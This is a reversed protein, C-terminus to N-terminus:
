RDGTFLSLLRPAVARLLAYVGVCVAVTLLPTAFYRLLYFAPAEGPFLRAALAGMLKLLLLTHAAYIFFSSQSCVRPVLLPFRRVSAAAVNVLACSGSIVYLPTLLSGLRVPAGQLLMLALLLLPTVVYSVTRMRGAEVVLNRRTLGMWAGVTFFFVASLSLGEVPPWLVMVYLAGLLLPLWGGLRRLLFHVVPALLVMVMLDRVFWLPVDIPATPHFVTLGLWNISDRGIDHSNWFIHWGGRDAFCDALSQPWERWPRGPLFHIAWFGAFSLLNWLVYPVLLTRFRKRLKTLWLSASWQEVKRFFLFGSFFFFLPVALTPAVYSFFTRVLQYCDMGTLPGGWVAAWDIEKPLGFSHIFVVAVALPFRLRTIVDSQLRGAEGAPLNSETKM